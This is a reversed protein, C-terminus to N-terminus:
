RLPFLAILMEETRRAWIPWGYGEPAEGGAPRYGKERLAAWLARMDEARDWAEHPSRIHYTGWDLYLLLPREDADKDVLGGIQGSSIMPSQGGARRFLDPHEFALRIANSASGGFGISARAWADAITRYKEDIRPLLEEIVMELYKGDYIDDSPDETVTHILVVILPPLSSGILRDLRNKLQIEVLAQKGYHIYAVPYRRDDRDYGAPLYVQVTRETAKTLSSTWEISELRGQRSSEVELPDAPGQWAPMAFWSVDGFLGHAHNPNRPDPGPEAYDVIFGYTVAATPELRTSYHYLDTGPVHIMPDERRFGIMDGVIGVDSAEGRYLFHVTGDEEVLPVESHEALFADIAESKNPAEALGVLFQELVGGVTATSNGDAPSSPRGLDVRALRAMSRAFLHGDAFAVESWSHDDFLDLKAIENYGDPSADIVHLSGPKTIVVLHDGILTPFGDGPERSRWAVKGTAADLCTFIRNNMGYLYGDRYVPTVYSKSISGSSWLKTIEWEKKKPEVRLMVSSDNQNMLFLRNGGAAVPVITLGGMGREDGDHQYSWLIEGTRAELGYVHTKGAAVVQRKEGLTAVVPSHYEITDDGAIWLVTGDDPDLGAIAMPKHPTDEEEEETAEGEGDEEDPLAHSLEILLVGDVVRPSTAFGYWPPSAGLDDVMHKAWLEEGTAADLAFLHGWAGLGFIRGAAMAPTSIPGDHSGSHGKYTESIRYRWLESGDEVAFAALYDSDEDAFMTAVRGDAVALASYGPGLAVNWGPELAVEGGEFLRVDQVTGSSDPGRFGPWDTAVAWTPFACLILLSWRSM